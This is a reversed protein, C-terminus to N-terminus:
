ELSVARIRLYFEENEEMQIKISNAGLSFYKKQQKLDVPIQIKGATITKELYDKENFKVWIRVPKDELYKTRGISLIFSRQFFPNWSVSIELLGTAKYSHSQEIETHESVPNIIMGRRSLNPYFLMVLLFFIATPIGILLVNKRGFKGGLNQPPPYLLFIILPLFYYEQSRTNAQFTCLVLTILFLFLWLNSKRLYKGALIYLLFSLALMIVLALIRHDSLYYTLGLSHQLRLGKQFVDHQTALHFISSQFIYSPFVLYLSFGLLAGLGFFKMNLLTFKRYKFFYVIFFPLYLWFPKRTAMALALSFFLLKDKEESFAFLLISILFLYPFTHVSIMFLPFLGSSILIVLILFGTLNHGKKRHHGYTFILMGLFCLISVFRIDIKFILPLLYSLIMMPPYPVTDTSPPCYNKLVPNEFALLTEGSGRIIPLMDATECSIPYSYLVGISIYLFYVSLIIVMGDLLPPLWNRGLRGAAQEIRQEFPLLRPRFILYLVLSVPLSISLFDYFSRSVHVRALNYRSLELIKVIVFVFIIQM